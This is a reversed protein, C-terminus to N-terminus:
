LVAEVALSYIMLFSAVELEDLDVFVGSFSSKSIIVSLFGDYLLKIEKIYVRLEINWLKDLRKAVATSVQVDVSVKDM